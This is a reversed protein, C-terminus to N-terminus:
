QLMKLLANDLTLLKCKNAKALYLYSADYFSLKKEVSLKLVRSYDFVSYKIDMRLFREYLKMALDETMRKQIVSSKFSNAIEYKLLEPSILIIKSDEFLKFYKKFEKAVKEDPLIASLMLSADIVFTPVTDINEAM